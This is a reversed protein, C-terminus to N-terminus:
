SIYVRCRFFGIVRVFGILGSISALFYAHRGVDLLNGFVRQADRSLEIQGLRMPTPTRHGGRDHFEDLIEAFFVLCSHLAVLRELEYSGLM